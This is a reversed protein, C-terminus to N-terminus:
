KTWHLPKSSQDSIQLLRPLEDCRAQVTEVCLPFDGRVASATEHESQGILQEVARDLADSVNHATLAQKLSDVNPELWRRSYLHGEFECLSPPGGGGNPTWPAFIPNENEPYMLCCVYQVAAIARGVTKLTWWDKWLHNVDPLLVGFTTLAGIWRFPKSNTGQFKLGRQDDIEEIIAGRMFESVAATQQPNLHVDFIHRDALVTYFYEITGGQGDIGRLDDRWAELFFPLLYVLLPGQIERTYLLDQTYEWLDQGSAREGPKLRALRQLHRDNGEFPEQIITEPPNMAGLARHFAIQHNSQDNVMVGVYRFTQAPV